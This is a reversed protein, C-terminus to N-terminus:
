WGISSTGDSKRYWTDCYHYQQNAEILDITIDDIGNLLMVDYARDYNKSAVWIAHCLYGHDIFATVQCPIGLLNEWENRLTVPRVQKDLHIM